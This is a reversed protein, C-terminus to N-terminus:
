SKAKAAERTQAKLAEIGDIFESTSKINARIRSSLRDLDEHLGAVRNDMESLKGVVGDGLLGKLKLYAVMETKSPDPTLAARIAGQEFETMECWAASELAIVLAAKVAVHDDHLENYKSKWEKDRRDLDEIRTAAQFSITAEPEAGSLRAVYAADKMLLKVIDASM